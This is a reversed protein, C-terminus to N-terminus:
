LSSNVPQLCTQPLGHGWKAVLRQDKGSGRFLDNVISLVANGVFPTHTVVGEHCPHVHGASNGDHWLSVLRALAEIVRSTAYASDANKRQNFNRSSLNRLRFRSRHRARIEM